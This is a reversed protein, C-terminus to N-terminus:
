SNTSKGRHDVFLRPDRLLAAGDLVVLADRTIGRVHEGQDATAPEFPPLLDITPMGIIEHVRDAVTGFEAAETGMVIIQTLDTLRAHSVGLIKRLDVISLIEGRLNTVGLVVDGAGPVPTFDLVRVVERVYRTEIAYREAALAFTVVELTEGAVVPEPSRALLRAREDTVARAREPTLEHAATAAARAQALRERVRAWDIGARGQSRKM